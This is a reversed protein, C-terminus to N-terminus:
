GAVAMINLGLGGARSSFTRKIFEFADFIVFGTSEKAPLINGLGFFVAFFMLAMGAIFLVPQPKFKKVILYGAWFTVILSLVIGM